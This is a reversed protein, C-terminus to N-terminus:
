NKGDGIVTKNIDVAIYETLLPVFFIWNKCNM